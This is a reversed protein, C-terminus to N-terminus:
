IVGSKIPGKRVKHVKYPFCYSGDSHLAAHEATCYYVECNSCKAVGLLPCLFCKKQKKSPMISYVSGWNKMIVIHIHTSYSEQDPKNTYQLVGSWTYIHVTPSRILNRHRILQGKAKRFIPFAIYYPVTTLCLLLMM